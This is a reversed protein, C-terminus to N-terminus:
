PSRSRSGQWDGDGDTMRVRWRAGGLGAGAPTALCAQTVTHPGAPPVATRGKGGVIGPGRRRQPLQWRCPHGPLYVDAQPSLRRVPRAKGTGVRAPRAAWRFDLEFGGVRLDAAAAGQSPPNGLRAPASTRTEFRSPRSVRPAVGAGEPGQLRAVRAATAPRRAARPAGRFGGEARLGAVAGGTVSLATYM